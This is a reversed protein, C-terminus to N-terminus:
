MRRMLVLCTLTLLVLTHHVNIHTIQPRPFKVAITFRPRGDHDQHNPEGELGLYGPDWEGANSSDPHIPEEGVMRDIIRLSM